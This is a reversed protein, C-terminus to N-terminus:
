DLLKLAVVFLIAVPWSMPAVLAAPGAVVAIVVLLWLRSAKM